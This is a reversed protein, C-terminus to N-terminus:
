IYLNHNRIYKLMNLEYFSGKTFGNDIVWDPKNVVQYSILKDEFTFSNIKM